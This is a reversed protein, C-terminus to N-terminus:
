VQWSLNFDRGGVQPKGRSGDRDGVDPFFVSIIHVLEPMQKETFVIWAAIALGLNVDLWVLGFWRHALVFGGRAHRVDVLGKHVPILRFGFLLGAGHPLRITLCIAQWYICADFKLLLLLGFWVM